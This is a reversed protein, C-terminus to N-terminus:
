SKAWGVFHVALIHIALDQRNMFEAGRPVEDGDATEVTCDCRLIRPAQKESDDKSQGDKDFEGADSAQGGALGTGAIDLTTMRNALTEVEGEPAKQVQGQKGEEAYDYVTAAIDLATMRNALTEVEGKRVKRMKAKMQLVAILYGALASKLEADTGTDRDPWRRSAYTQMFRDAIEPARNYVAGIDDVDLALAIIAVETFVHVTYQFAGQRDCRYQSPMQKILLDFKEDHLRQLEKSISTHWTPKNPDM